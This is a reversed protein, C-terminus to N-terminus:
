DRKPEESDGEGPQVPLGAADQRRHRRMKEEIQQIQHENQGAYGGSVTIRTAKTVNPQLSFWASANSMSAWNAAAPWVMTFSESDAGTFNGPFNGRDTGPLNTPDTGPLNTPDTGTSIIITRPHLTVALACFSQSFAITRNFRNYGLECITAAPQRRLAILPRLAMLVKLRGPDTGTLKGPDTGTLKGPDTGMAVSHTGMDVLLPYILICSPQLPFHANQITGCNLPFGTETGNSSTIALACANRAAPNRSSTTVPHLRASYRSPSRSRASRSAARASKGGGLVDPVTGLDGPVTGALNIGPVTGAPKVLLSSSVAGPTVCLIRMPDTSGPKFSSFSISVRAECSFMHWNM